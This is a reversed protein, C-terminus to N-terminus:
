LEARWSLAFGSPLPGASVNMVRAARRSASTGHLKRDAFPAFREWLVLFIGAAALAGGVGWLVQAAVAKQQARQRHALTADVQEMTSPSLASYARRERQSGLNAVVGGVLLGAGLALSPWGVALLATRRRAQDPRERASTSEDETAAHEAAEPTLAPPAALSEAPQAASLVRPALRDSFLSEVLAYVTLDLEQAPARPLQATGARVASHPWSSLRMTCATM